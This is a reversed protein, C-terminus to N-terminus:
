TESSKKRAAELKHFAAIRRDENGEKTELPASIIFPIRRERLATRTFTEYFTQKTQGMADLMEGLEEYLSDELRISITKM